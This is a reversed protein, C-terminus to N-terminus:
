GVLPRFARQPAPPPLGRLREWLHSQDARTIDAFELGFARGVDGPRRGHVVRAITAVGDVWRNSGPPRFAFVVEEGTLVRERTQVLMGNTSLDLALSGIAKFDHERVIECDLRVFRRFAQRPVVRSSLYPAKASFTM